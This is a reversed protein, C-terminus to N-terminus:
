DFPTTSPPRHQGDGAGNSGGRAAWRGLARRGVAADGRELAYETAIRRLMDNEVRLLANESRLWRLEEQAGAHQAPDQQASM